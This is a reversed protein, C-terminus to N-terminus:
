RVIQIKSLNSNSSELLKILQNIRKKLKSIGLDIIKRFREDGVKMDLYNLVYLLDESFLKLDEIEVERRTTRDAIKNLSKKFKEIRGRLRREDMRRVERELRKKLIELEMQLSVADKLVDSITRELRSFFKRLMDRAKGEIKFSELNKPFSRGELLSELELDLIYSERLSKEISSCAKFYRRIRSLFEKSFDKVDMVLIDGIMEVVHEVKKRDMREYSEELIRLLSLTSKVFNSLLKNQKEIAEEVEEDLSFFDEVKKGCIRKLYKLVEERRGMKRDVKEVMKLLDKGKESAKGWVENVDAVRRLSRVRRLYDGLEKVIRQMKLYDLYMEFFEKEKSLLEKKIRPFEKKLFREIDRRRDEFDKVDLGRSKAIGIRRKIREVSRLYRDVKEIRKKVRKLDFFLRLFDRKLSIRLGKWLDEGFAEGYVIERRKSFLYRFTDLICRKVEELFDGFRERIRESLSSINSSRRELYDRFRELEEIERELNRLFKRLEEGDM